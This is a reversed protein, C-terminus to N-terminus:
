RRRVHHGRRREATRYRAATFAGLLAAIGIGAAAFGGIGRGDATREEPEVEQARSASPEAQQRETDGLYPAPPPPPMDPSDSVAAPPGDSGVPEEAAARQPAFAAFALALVAFAAINIRRM